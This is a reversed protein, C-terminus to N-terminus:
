GRGGGEGGTEGELMLTRESHTPQIATRSEISMLRFVFSQLPLVPAQRAPLGRRYCSTSMIELLLVVVAFCWWDFYLIHSGYVAGRAVM